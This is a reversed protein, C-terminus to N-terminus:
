DKAMTKRSLKLVLTRPLFPVVWYLLLRLKWDDIAVLKGQKMARYGIRAVETASAANKFTDVDELDAVRAFGTKVPGPCLATVTIGDSRLEEAIAQSFSVVFAKTAYYTAMMPGPLFGATSAVNLIKGHKRKVM